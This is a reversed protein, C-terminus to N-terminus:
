EGAHLLSRHLCRLDVGRPPLKEQLVLISVQAVQRGSQEGPRGIWVPLFDQRLMLRDDAHGAVPRAALRHERLAARHAMLELANSVDHTGVQGAHGAFRGLHQENGDEIGILGNVTAIQLIDYGRLVAPQVVADQGALRRAADREPCLLALFHSDQAALEVFHLARTLREHGFAQLLVQIFLLQGVQDGVQAGAARRALFQLAVPRAQNLRFRVAREEQERGFCLDVAAVDRQLRLELVDAEPVPVQVM